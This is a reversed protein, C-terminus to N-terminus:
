GQVHWQDWYNRRSNSCLAVGCKQCGTIVSHKQPPRKVLQPQNLLTNRRKSSCFACFGRKTLHVKFHYQMSDQTSISEDSSALECNRLAVQQGFREFIDFYLHKRFRNQNTIPKDWGHRQLLFTNTIAVEIWLIILKAYYLPLTSCVLYFCTCLLKNVVENFEGEARSSQVSNIVSIWEM